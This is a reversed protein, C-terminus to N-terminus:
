AREGQRSRLARADASPDYAGRGPAAVARRTRRPLDAVRIRPRGKRGANPVKGDRVLRGLHEESIGSREAAQPLTLLEDDAAAFMLRLKDTLEAFFRDPDVATVGFQRFTERAADLWQFVDERSSM